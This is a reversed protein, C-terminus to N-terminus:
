SERPHHSLPIRIFVATGRAPVSEITVTGNVFSAREQMSILGLYPDSAQSLAQMDFGAGDDEVIAHIQHPLQNIIVSVCSAAAHKISNNLAEQIIRYITLEVEAPLKQDSAGTTQFEITLGTHAAWQDIQQEIASHLGLNTLRIPQLELVIRDIKSDLQAAVTQLRGLEQQLQEPRDRVQILGALGFRLASALQGVQDHLEHAIRQREEEQVSVFRRLLAQRERNSRQNKALENRLRENAQLLEATRNHVSYELKNPKNWLLKISPEM